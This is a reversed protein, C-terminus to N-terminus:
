LKSDSHMEELTGNALSRAYTTKVNIKENSMFSILCSLHIRTHSKKRKVNPNQLQDTNSLIAISPKNEDNYLIKDWLKNAMEVRLLFKHLKLQPNNLTTSFSCNTSM